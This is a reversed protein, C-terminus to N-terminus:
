DLRSVLQILLNQRMATKIVQATTKGDVADPGARANVSWPLLFVAIGLM